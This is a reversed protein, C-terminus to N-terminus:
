LFRIESEVRGEGQCVGGGGNQIGGRGEQEVEEEVRKGWNNTNGQKGMIQLNCMQKLVAKGSGPFCALPFFGSESAGGISM